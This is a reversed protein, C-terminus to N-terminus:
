RPTPGKDTVITECDYLTVTGSFPDREIMRDNRANGTDSWIEFMVVGTKPELHWCAPGGVRQFRDYQRWEEVITQRVADNTQIIKSPGNERHRLGNLFWGFEQSNHFPDTHTLVAAPGDERHLEGDKFWFEAIRTQNNTQIITMAPGSDAHLRGAANFCRQILHDHDARWFFEFPIDKVIYDVRANAKIVNEKM